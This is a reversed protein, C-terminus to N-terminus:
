APTCFRRRSIIYSTTSHSQCLTISKKRNKRLMIKEKFTSHSTSTKQRKAPRIQTVSAVKVSPTPANKNIYQSLFTFVADFYKKYRDSNATEATVATSMKNCMIGHLLYQVKREPDLGQYGYEMLNQLIIHYKVYRAVDILEM